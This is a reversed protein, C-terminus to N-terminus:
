SRAPKLLLLGCGFGKAPGVGKRVVDLLLDPNRIALVGSFELTALRM